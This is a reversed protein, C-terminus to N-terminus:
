GSDRCGAFRDMHARAKFFHLLEPMSLRSRIPILQKLRFGSNTTHTVTERDGSIEGSDAGFEFALTRVPSVITTM